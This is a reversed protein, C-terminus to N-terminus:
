LVKERMVLRCLSLSLRGAICGCESVRESRDGKEETYPILHTNPGESSKVTLVGDKDPHVQRQNAPASVTTISTVPYSRRDVRGGFM